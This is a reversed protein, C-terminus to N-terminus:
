ASTKRYAFGKDYNLPTFAVDLDHITESHGIMLTGDDALQKHFMQMCGQKMPQDFYILVNRCFIADFSGYRRAAYTDKLNFKEFHVMSRIEPDLLYDRGEAKFYRSLTRPETTKLAYQPYRGAQALDLVKESIDTGLIEIKWDALRVGLCRHVIMALTYPEEGSSCAASWLRLTKTARRRELLEPLVRDEFVQMQAPNRFFSTENITIRNFMEQFEDSQYPGSTLFMFYQDFDDFELEELRRALRTELVYKKSDQFHIGARDYVIKRLRHFQQDTLQLRTAPM